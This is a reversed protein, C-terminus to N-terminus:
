NCKERKVAKKKIKRAIALNMEMSYLRRIIREVTEQNTSGGYKKKLRAWKEDSIRFQIKQM